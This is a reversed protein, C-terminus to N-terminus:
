QELLDLFAPLDAMDVDRDLDADFAGCEDVDVVVDPGFLCDFFCSYDDLDVDTDGDCNGNVVLQNYYAYNGKTSDWNTIAMDLSHSFLYDVVVAGVLTAQPYTVTIWGHERSVTYEDPDLEVGDLEVFLVEDIPQRGLYFLHQGPYPAFTVVDRRPASNDIDGFVIKEIVSTGGSSWSPSAPLGSGTNYFLRTFDWWGGTALDLLGDANVDALAVASGYGDYYSWSYTTAFTGGPLGDYQKFLGSGGTQTNDTVFLDPLGDTNVDGATAMIGDQGTTDGTVWSATTELTGGLNLYMRTNVHSAVGVLDLRGDDDADVWLVGLYHYVDDSQWSATAELVGEVNLYVYTPYNHQPTYAWGTGVALDPRGDNNVDGFAVGFANGDIDSTWDPLSSLTGSNNLYLRAIAEFTSFEGLHAVAVDLWGDGNVDAVDLHGNYAADSSQWDPATPLSGDGQNYYVVLHQQAMDNGNAVILDLWGDRDLDALAAGTSVQTDSSLWDPTSNYVTQGAAAVAILTHVAVTTAFRLM